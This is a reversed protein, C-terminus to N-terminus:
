VLTELHIVCARDIRKDHCQFEGGAASHKNQGVMGKMGSRSGRVHVATLTVPLDPKVPLFPPM